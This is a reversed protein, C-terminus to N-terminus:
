NWDVPKKTIARLIINAISLAVGQMELSIITKGTVGQLAMAAMSIINVWFTKSTFISKSEM